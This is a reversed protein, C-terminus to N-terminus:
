ETAIAEIINLDAARRAPLYGFVIGLVLSFVLAVIVYTMSVAMTIKLVSLAVQMISVGLLLGITGGIFTLLAAEVIFQVQIAQKSAGIARKVGIERTREVVSAFMINMVGIGAVLLSIAAILSMVISLIDTMSTITNLIMSLDEAKYSGKEHQYKADLALGVQDGVTVADYNPDTKIAINEITAASFMTDYAGDDIIATKALDDSNEFVGVITFIRNNMYIKKGLAESPTFKTYSEIIQKEILIAQQVEESNYSSLSTGAILDYTYFQSFNDDERKVSASVRQNEISMSPSATYNTYAAVVGEVNNLIYEPDEEKYYYGDVDSIVQGIFDFIEEDEEPVYTVSIGGADGMIEQTIAVDVADSIAFIIYVVMVGIVIGILSLASRLKNERLEELALKFYEILM